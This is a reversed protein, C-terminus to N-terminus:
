TGSSYKKILAEVAQQKREHMRNLEKQSLEGLDNGISRTAEELLRDKLITLARKKELLSYVTKIPRVWTVKLESKIVHSQTDMLIYMLKGYTNRMKAPNM